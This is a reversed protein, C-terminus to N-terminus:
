GGAPGDANEERPEGPRDGDDDRRRAVATRADAMLDALSAPLPQGAFTRRIHQEHREVLLEARDLALPREAEALDDWQELAFWVGQLQIVDPVVRRWRGSEGETPLAVAARAFEVWRGLLVSWTLGGVPLPEAGRPEGSASSESPPLM